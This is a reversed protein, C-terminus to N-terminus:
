YREYLRPNHKGGLGEGCCSIGALTTLPDESTGLKNSGATNVNAKSRM